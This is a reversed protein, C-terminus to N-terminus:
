GQMGSWEDNTYRPTIHKPCNWDFGEIDFVVAREIRAKYEPVALQEVLKPDDQTDVVRARALIKLRMRNPYDMLFLSVRDDGRMNGVSIYQLNGRFDAYGIQNNTLVRLFGKPGGRFQVYPWGDQGVSAMYFSDRQSIFEMERESLHMDDVDRQEVKAAVQRTGYHEQAAKVDDTFAIRTYNRAMVLKRWELRTLDVIPASLIPPQLQTKLSRLYDPIRSFLSDPDIPPLDLCFWGLSCTWWWTELALVEV